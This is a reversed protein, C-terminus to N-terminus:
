QKFIEVLHFTGYYGSCLKTRRLTVSLHGIFQTYLFGKVNRDSILFMRIWIIKFINYCSFTLKLFNFKPSSSVLVLIQAAKIYIQGM